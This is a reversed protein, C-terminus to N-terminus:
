SNEADEKNQVAGQQITHTLEHALLEQGSSSNPNYAGQKFFIDSGTTFATAQVSRSLEDSNTDNHVRVNSFDANFGSEMQSRVEDPMAQGGGRSQEIQTEIENSVDLGGMVDGDRKMQLEEEDDMRQLPERKMMLEKEEVDRQITERKMQLEEEEEIRQLPERKMMLEEEEMGDRQIPESNFGSVVQKAMADAEQEHSDGAETITLKAQIPYSTGSSLQAAYQNGHMQQIASMVDPTLNEATPDEIARQIGAMDFQPTSKSVAPKTKSAQKQPLHQYIRKM